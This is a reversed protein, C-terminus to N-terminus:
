ASAESIIIYYYLFYYIWAHVYIKDSTYKHM